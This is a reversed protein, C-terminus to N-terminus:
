FISCCRPWGTESYTSRWLDTARASVAAAAAMSLFSSGKRKRLSRWIAKLIVRDVAIRIPIENMGTKGGGKDARRAEKLLQQVEEDTTQSFDETGPASPM